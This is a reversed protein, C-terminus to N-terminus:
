SYLRVEDANIVQDHILAHLESSLDLNSAQIYRRLISLPCYISELEFRM